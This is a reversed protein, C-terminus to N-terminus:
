KKQLNNLLGATEPIDKQIFTAFEAPTSAILLMDRDTLFKAVVPIKATAAMDAHIQNVIEKPTASPALFGIWSGRPSSFTPMPQGAAEAIIPLDPMSPAKFTVALAKVKNAQVQGAVSGVANFMMQVEGAMVATLGQAAGGYRIEAIELGTDKMLMLMAMRAPDGVGSVAYNLKGPNKRVYAIFEPLTNVPVSPNLILVEPQSVLLTIPALSKIPDYSLQYQSPTATYNNNALTITYGDPAANATMENTLVNSDSPRNDVLVRQGWKEQLYQAMLRAFADNGGGVASGVLIKVPKEPWAAQAGDSVAVLAALAVFASFLRIAFM